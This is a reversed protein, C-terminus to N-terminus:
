KEPELWIKHAMPDIRSIRGRFKKQQGTLGEILLENGSVQSISAVDKFYFEELNGKLLYADSECM